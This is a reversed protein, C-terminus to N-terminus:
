NRLGAMKERIWSNKNILLKENLIVKQNIENDKKYSGLQISPKNETTKLYIYKLNHM